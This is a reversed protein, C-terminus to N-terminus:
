EYLAQLRTYFERDAVGHEAPGIGSAKWGGFPAAAEAGATSQNFKLIGVRAEAAFRRRHDEDDSFLAAALGHPVGNLLALAHGFDRATQVVLIPGFSEVQVIPHAPDDCEIITPCVYAGATAPRPVEISQSLSIVRCGDRMAAEIRARLDDRKVISIVPGIETAADNPDGQRLATGARALRAILEDRCAQHVIVRRNATCRQGAFDFAGHSIQMAAADLDADPMVIAGNNGGLEAQLPVGREICIAAMARGAEISSTITVADVGGHRALRQATAAGGHVVQVLGAPCGADLLIPMLADAIAAAIPSPKWIVANGFMVAPAIKGLPIAVPNNWPTIAAIVGLPVRRCMTRPTVPITVDPPPHAAFSVLDAAFMLEAEAQTRPKGIHDILLQVLAPAAQSLRDIVRQLVAQRQQRSTSQWQALAHQAAGAATDIADDAADCVELLRRTVDAPAHHVFREGEADRSSM